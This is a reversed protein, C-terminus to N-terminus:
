ISWLGSKSILGSRGIALRRQYSGFVGHWERAKKEQRSPPRACVGLTRHKMKWPEATELASFIAAPNLSMSHQRHSSPAETDECKLLSRGTGSLTRVSM